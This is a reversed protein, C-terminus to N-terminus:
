DFLELETILKYQGIMDYKVKIKIQENLSTQLVGSAESFGILYRDGDLIFNKGDITARNDNNKDVQIMSVVGVVIGEASRDNAKIFSPISIMALLGVIAIILMFEVFSFGQKM